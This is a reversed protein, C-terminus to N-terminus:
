DTPHFSACFLGKKVIEKGKKRTSSWQAIPRSVISMAHTLQITLFQRSHDGIARGRGVSHIIQEVIELRSLGRIPRRGLSKQGPTSGV